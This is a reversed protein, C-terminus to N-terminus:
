RRADWELRGVGGGAVFCRLYVSTLGVLQLAVRLMTNVKRNGAPWPCPPLMCPPVWTLRPPCACAACAARIKPPHHRLAACLVGPLSPKSSNGAQQGLCLCWLGQGTNNYYYTLALGSLGSM